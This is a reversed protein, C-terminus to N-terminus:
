NVVFRNEANADIPDFDIRYASLGTFPLHHHIERFVVQKISAVGELQVLISRKEIRLGYRFEHISNRPLMQVYFLKEHHM